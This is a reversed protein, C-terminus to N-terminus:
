SSRAVVNTEDAFVDSPVVGDVLADPGRQLVASMEVLERENKRPSDAEFHDLFGEKGPEPGNHCNARWGGERDLKRSRGADGEDPERSSIAEADVGPFFGKM